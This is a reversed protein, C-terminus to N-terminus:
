KSDNLTAEMELVEKTEEAMKSVLDEMSYNDIFYKLNSLREAVYADEEETLGTQACHKIALMLQKPNQLHSLKNSVYVLHYIIKSYHEVSLTQNQAVSNIIDEYNKAFKLQAIRALGFQKEFLKKILAKYNDNKYLLSLKTTEVFQFLSILSGTATYYNGLFRNFPIYYFHVINNNYKLYLGKNPNKAKSNYIVVIDYDSADDELETGRSGALFAMIIDPNDFFTKFYSSATFDKIFNAKM